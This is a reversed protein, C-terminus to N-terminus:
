RPDKGMSVLVMSLKANGAPHSTHAGVHRASRRGLGHANLLNQITTKSISYGVTALRDAYGDDGPSSM